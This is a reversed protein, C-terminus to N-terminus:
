EEKDLVGSFPQTIAQDRSFVTKVIGADLMINETLEGSLRDWYKKLEREKITKPDTFVRREVSENIKQILVPDDISELLLQRKVRMVEAHQDDFDYKYVLDHHMDIITDSYERVLQDFDRNDLQLMRTRTEDTPRFGLGVAIETALNFDDEVVPRNRRDLIKNYRHMIWAKMLNRGGSPIETLLATLGEKLQATTLDQESRNDALFMVSAKDLARFFRSGTEASAGFAALWLPDDNTAIDRLSQFIAAGLAARNAIDIEAGLFEHLFVGAIGQNVANAVEPTPDVGLRSLMTPVVAGIIPMGAAGYLGIQALAIRTKQERTFGGRSPGKLILEGVKAQVQMFQTAMGLLQRGVGSGYGGQWWAANARNLELMAKNAEAVIGSLTDDDISEFLKNPNKNKWDELAALFSWRRNMKEGGRWIYLSANEIKGMVAQSVGLGTSGMMAVDANTEVAEVLGSKRWLNYKAADDASLIGKRKMLTISERLVTSDLVNDLTRFNWGVKLVKPVDKVPLISLAVTAAQAQIFAQVPNLTGILTHMTVAKLANVPNAHKLYLVSPVNEATIGLTRKGTLAWDHLKQIWNEMLTEEKTPVGNWVKIQERQLNLSRGLATDSNLQTSNFGKIEPNGLKHSYRRVTNLWKQEAGIRWENMSVVKAAHSIYRQYAESPRMREPQVGKLGLLLDGKARTGVYLGEGSSLANEMRELQGMVSGDAVEYQQAIAERLRQVDEPTKNVVNLKLLEDEVLQNKFQELDARSSFARLATTRHATPEGAKSYPLRQRLVFEVGENIKPVYGPHYPIIQEPLERMRKSSNILIYEVREGGKAMEGAGTTNYDYRTRVLRQDKAYAQQILDDSWPVVELTDQKLVHHGAKTRLSMLASEPTDFMKGIVENGQVRTVGFGGLELERRSAYNRMAHLQDAFIRRKYYAEVFEPDTLGRAALEAQNFVKGRASSEPNVFDDGELEIADLLQRKKTNSVGLIKSNADLWLRNMRVKTANATDQLQIAQKVTDGFDLRGDVGMKSWASPSRGGTVGQFKLLDDTTEGYHGTNANIRWSMRGTHTKPAVTTKIVQTRSKGKQFGRGPKRQLTKTTQVKTNLLDYSFEFGTDDQKLIKVNDLHIGETLLDEGKRDMDQLFNSVVRKRDSKDLAGIKLLDSEDTISRVFGQAQRQYNNLEEVIAGSLGEAKEPDFATPTTPIMNDRAQQKTMGASEAVADDLMSKINVVAAQKKNGLDSATKVLNSRRITDEAAIKMAEGMRAKTLKGLKGLKALAQAPLVDASSFAADLTAQSQLKEGGLPQLFQMLISSAELLNKDKDILGIFETGTARIVAQMLEPWVAEKRELPLAQFSTVMGEISDASLTESLVKNNAIEGKIDIIDKIEGFPIFYSAMDTITDFIGNQDAMMAVDNRAALLFEKQKRFDEEATTALSEVLAKETATPATRNETIKKRQEIGQKVHVETNIPAVSTSRVSELYADNEKLLRDYFEQAANNASNRGDYTYRARDVTQEDGFNGLIAAIQGARMATERSGTIQKGYMEAFFDPTIPQVADPATELQGLTGPSINAKNDPM